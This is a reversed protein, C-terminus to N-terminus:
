VPNPPLPASKTQKRPRLFVQVAIFALWAMLMILFPFYAPRSHIRLEMPASHASSVRGEIWPIDVSIPDPRDVLCGSFSEQGDSWASLSCAVDTGGLPSCALLPLYMQRLRFSKVGAPLRLRIGDTQWHLEAGEIAQGAADTLIPRVESLRFHTLSQAQDVWTAAPYRHLAEILAPSHVLLDSIGLARLRDLARAQVAAEADHNVCLLQGRSTHALPHTLLRTTVAGGLVPRQQAPGVLYPLHGNPLHQGALASDEPHHLTDEIMLYTNTPVKAAVTRMRTLLARTAVPDTRNMRELFIQAGAREPSDLSLYTPLWLGTLILSLSLGRGIWKRAAPLASFGEVALVAFWALFLFRSFAALKAWGLSAHFPVLLSLDLGFLSLSDPGCALLLLCFAAVPLWHRPRFIKEQRIQFLVAAFVILTWALLNTPNAKAIAIGILLPVLSAPLLKRLEEARLWCVALPILLFPFGPVIVERVTQLAGEPVQWGLLPLSHHSANLSLFVYFFDTFLLCCGALVTPLLWLIKASWSGRIIRTALLQQGSLVAMVVLTAVGSMYHTFLSLGLLLAAVLGTRLARRWDDPMTQLSRFFREVALLGLAIGLRQAWQGTYLVQVPAADLLGVDNPYILLSLLGATLGGIIWPGPTHRRPLLPLFALASLLLVLLLFNRYAAESIESGLGLSGALSALPNYFVNPTWGFLHMPDYAWLRTQWSLTDRTFAINGIDFPHDRWWSAPYSYLEFGYAWRLLAFAGMALGVAVALTALVWITRNASPSASSPTASQPKSTM